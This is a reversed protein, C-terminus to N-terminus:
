QQKRMKKVKKTKIQEQNCVGEFGKQVEMSIFLYEPRLVIEHGISNFEFGNANEEYRICTKKKWLMMMQSMKVIMGLNMTMLM